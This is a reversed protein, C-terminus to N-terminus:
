TVVKEELAVVDVAQVAMQLPGASSLLRGDTVGTVGPDRQEAM